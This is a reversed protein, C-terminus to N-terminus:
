LNERLSVRETERIAQATRIIPHTVSRQQIKKLDDWPITVLRKKAEVGSISLDYLDDSAAALNPMRGM